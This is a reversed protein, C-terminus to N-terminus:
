LPVLGDSKAENNTHSTHTLTHTFDKMKKLLQM